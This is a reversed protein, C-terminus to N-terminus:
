LPFGVGLHKLTREKGGTKPKSKVELEYLLTVLRGLAIQTDPTLKRFKQVIRLAAEKAPDPQDSKAKKM